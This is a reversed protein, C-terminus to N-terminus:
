SPLDDGWRSQGDAELTLAHVLVATPLVLLLVLGQLRITCALAVAGLALAQRGYTPRELALAIAFATRIM